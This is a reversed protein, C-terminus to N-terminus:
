RSLMGNPSLLFYNMTLLLGAYFVPALTYLRRTTFEGTSSAFAEWVVILPWFIVAFIIGTLDDWIRGARLHILLQALSATVYDRAIPSIVLDWDFAWKAFPVITVDLLATTASPVYVDWIGIIDRLAGHWEFKAVHDFVAIFAFMGIVITIQQYLLVGLSPWRSESSTEEDSMSM